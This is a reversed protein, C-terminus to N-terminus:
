LIMQLLTLFHRSLKSLCEGSAAYAHYAIYCILLAARYYDSRICCLAFNGSDMLNIHREILVTSAELCTLISYRHASKDRPKTQLVRPTHIILLFQRLQLDLLAWAQDSKSDAWEPIKDLGAQLEQEYHFIDPFDPGSHVSNAFSCLKTRLALTEMSCHLFSTDTFETTPHSPPLQQM